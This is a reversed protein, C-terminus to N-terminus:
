FKFTLLAREFSSEYDHPVLHKGERRIRNTLSALDKGHECVLKYAKKFGIGKISELYDCGSLICTTLLQDFDFKKFDLEEVQSLKDLDVEFGLGNKDMKFFCVKVGFALLDSDETFVAEVRGQLYLYALQADAEYPAVIFQVGLSAASQVFHYAMLPTIDVAAPFMKSANISNGLRLQEEAKRKQELRHKEREIETNQKM